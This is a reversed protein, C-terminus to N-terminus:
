DGTLWRKARRLLYALFGALSIQPKDLAWDRFQKFREESHWADTIVEDGIRELLERAKPKDQALCAFKAYNSLNWADPHRAIIDEFGQNMRPWAAQTDQFILDGFQTESAYWYIRAYLSWGEVSQTHEVARRALHDIQLISGGWKPLLNEFAMFYISYYFPERELAEHLLESFDEGDWSQARAVILMAEYWHPDLAAVAKHEELYDSAKAINERFPAWAHEAVEHAYKGGRYAWAYALFLLGRVILPTPSRPHRRTWELIKAEMEAYLREEKPTTGSICPDTFNFLGQLGHYFVSLKWLGSKTRSKEERYHQSWQELKDFDSALFAYQASSTIQGREDLESLVNTQPASNRM